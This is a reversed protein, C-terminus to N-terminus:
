IHPDWERMWGMKKLGKSESSSDCLWTCTWDWSHRWPKKMGGGVGWGWHEAEVKFESDRVLDGPKKSQSIPTVGEVWAKRERGVRQSWNKTGEERSCLSLFREVLLSEMRKEMKLKREESTGKRWSIFLSLDRGANSLLFLYFWEM